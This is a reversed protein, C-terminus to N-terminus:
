RPVFKVTLGDEPALIVAYAENPVNYPVVPELKYKHLIQALSARLQMMGYRKGICYRPGEGFPMFTYEMNNGESIDRFREPNWKKPEPYYKENYHLAVLNVFVPTGKKVTVKDNLKYDEACYRDLYSVPPYKRLTEHICATLYKLEMLESYELVDNGTREVAKSIEKHLEEQEEPHHALEHLCYSLTTSSTEIAGFIFVAVQALMINDALKADGSDPLKISDRLKFLHNVLDKDKSQDTNKRKEVVDWFLKKIYDSAAASFFQLRLLSALAPVFFILTFELGRRFTWKVMHSTINWLPSPKDSLVSVRIGFVSYAVTDSTYMSFLNKLNVAQNCDIHDRKIKKVLEVANINMLETISKLRLSTFLPTLENKLQKWMPNKVTFLNLWGLPDSSSCYLFRDQFNDFDKTLINRALEPSQVVLTPTWGLYIGFYDLSPYKSKLEYCYDWFSQRMVFKLNGIFPLPKDYPIGRDKWYQFVRSSYLYVLLISLLIIGVIISFVDM